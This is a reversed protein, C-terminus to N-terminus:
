PKLEAMVKRLFRGVCRWTQIDNLCMPQGLGEIWDEWQANELIGVLQGITTIDREEVIDHTDKDCRAYRV